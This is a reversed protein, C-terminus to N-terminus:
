AGGQPEQNNTNKSSPSLEQVFGEYASLSGGANLNSDVYIHKDHLAKVANYAVKAANYDQYHIAAALVITQCTADDQYNKKSKIDAILSKLGAEDISFSDGNPRIDSVKNYTAVINDGCVTNVLVVKQQPQKWAVAVYGVMILGVVLLVVVSVSIVISTTNFIKKNDM